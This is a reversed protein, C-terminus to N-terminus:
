CRHSCSLLAKFMQAQVSRKRRMRSSIAQPPPHDLASLGCRHRLPFCMRLHPRSTQARGLYMGSTSAKIDAVGSANTSGESQVNAVASFRQEQSAKIDAASSTSSRSTKELDASVSFGTTSAVAIDASASVARSLRGYTPPHPSEAPRRQKSIAPLIQCSIREVNLYRRGRPRRKDPHWFTPPPRRRIPFLSSPRHRRRGYRLRKSIPGPPSQERPRRSFTPSRVSPAILRRPFIAPARRRRRAPHKSIPSRPSRQRRSRPTGFASSSQATSKQVDASAARSSVGSAQVDALASTANVGSASVDAVASGIKNATAQIDASASEAQAATTKLTAAASERM